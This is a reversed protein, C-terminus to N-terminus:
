LHHSYPLVTPATGPIWLPTWPSVPNLCDTMAHGRELEAITSGYRHNSRRVRDLRAIAAAQSEAPLVEPPGFGVRPRTLTWAGPGTRRITIRDRKPGHRDPKM